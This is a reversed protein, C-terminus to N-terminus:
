ELTDLLLGLYSTRIQATPDLDLRELVAVAGERAPEVREAEREVEVFTGLDRVDDLTITYGDYRYFTRDKEVTYAPTFGLGELIGRLANPDEVTTEHERRSKSESDILPGKYTLKVTEEGEEVEQRVRLAEDTDAFSRHPADYYTDTQRAQRTREAGLTALRERVPGHEAAVKLEVEYM